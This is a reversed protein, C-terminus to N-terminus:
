PSPAAAGGHGARRGRTPRAPRATPRAAWGAGRIPNSVAGPPQWFYDSAGEAELQLPTTSGACFYVTDAGANVSVEINDKLEITLTKYVVEGCGFNNSLSVTITETGEVLADTLPFIPFSLQTQGAPFTIVAPINLNYDVGLEATGGITVTFSADQAFAQSLSVVLQDSNGSCDEVFYDIGFKESFM